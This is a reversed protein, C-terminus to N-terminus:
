SPSPAASPGIGRLRQVSGGLKARLRELNEPRASVVWQTGVLYTGGYVSAADLWSRQYEAAPFTTVVYEAGKTRCVGERLEDADIRIEAKCGTLGAIVEVKAPAVVGAEAAATPASSKGGASRADEGGGCASVLPLLLGGVLVLARRVHRETYSDM